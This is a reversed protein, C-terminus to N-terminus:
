GSLVLVGGLVVVGSHNAPLWWKKTRISLIGFERM